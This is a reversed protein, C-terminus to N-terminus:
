DIKGLFDKSSSAAADGDGVASFHIKFPISFEKTCNFLLIVDSNKNKALRFYM